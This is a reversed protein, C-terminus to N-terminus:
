DLIINGVADATSTQSNGSPNTIGAGGKLRNNALYVTRGSTFIMSGSSGGTEVLSNYVRVTGSTASDYFGYTYSSVSESKFNCNDFLIDTGSSWAGGSGSESIFTSNKVEELNILKGGYAGSVNYGTCYYLGKPTGTGTLIGNTNASHGLCYWAEASDTGGITLGGINGSGITYCDCHFAKSDEILLGHSGSADTVKFESNRVESASGTLHNYGLTTSAKIKFLTGTFKNIGTSEFVSGVINSTALVSFQSGTLGTSIFRGNFINTTASTSYLSLGGDNIIDSGTLEVDSGVGCVLGRNQASGYTGNIRKITGNLIKVKDTATISFSDSTGTSSNTYTYGNMNITLGININVATGSSDTIDGYMEITDGASAGAIALAFSTYFTPEGNASNVSLVGYGALAVWSSGNYRFLSDTETNFVIEDEIMGSIAAMEANTVRNLLIGNAVSSLIIKGGAFTLSDTITAVRGSAITGNDTYINSVDSFSVAGAGDTKLFQGASGDSVPLTYANSIKITGNNLAKFVETGALSELKLLDTGINDSGKLLLRGNTLSLQNNGLNHLRPAPMTQDQGFLNWGALLDADAKQSEYVNPGTSILKTLDILDGSAIVTAQTTYQSVKKAM